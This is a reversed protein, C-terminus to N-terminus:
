GFIQIITHTWIGYENEFSIKYTKSTSPLQRTIVGTAKEEETLAIMKDLSATLTGSRRFEMHIVESEPDSSSATITIYGNEVTHTIEPKCVCFEACYETGALKVVYYGADFKRSFKQHGVVDVEEILVGDCFVQVTNEGEAFSSVVTQNGYLYNSKNGYDVSIMPTEKDIGSEFLIKSNEEDFSPVSEFDTYRCLTYKARWADFDEVSNLRRRCTPRIADSVEVKVIKGNEDRFIGTIIAVHNIGDGHAHLVDCLELDDVTYENKEAVVTMGPIKFWNQTNCRYKIGLCYRVFGNCVIGYYTSANNSHYMNKTYLVSDPNSLASLLTEYSVNECIFKDNQETSSYPMGKYTNGAKFVGRQTASLMTPIDRLPTFTFETLERARQIAWKHYDTQPEDAILVLKDITVTKTESNHSIEYGMQEAVFDIPLMVNDEMIAPCTDITYTRRSGVAQDSDVKLEVSYDETAATVTRSMEDYKFEIGLFASIDSVSVLMKGNQMVPAVSFSKKVGDVVACPTPESPETPPDPQCGCFCVPLVTLLLLRILRKRIKKEKNLGNM